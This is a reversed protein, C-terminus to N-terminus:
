DDALVPAHKAFAYAVARKIDDLPIRSPATLRPLEVGRYMLKASRAPATKHTANSTSKPMAEIHDAVRRRAVVYPQAGKPVM